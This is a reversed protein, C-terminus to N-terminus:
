GGFVGVLCSVGCCVGISVCLSLRRQLIIEPSVRPSTGSPSRVLAPPRGVPLAWWGSPERAERINNSSTQYYILENTAYKSQVNLRLDELEM